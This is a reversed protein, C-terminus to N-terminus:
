GKRHRLEVSCAGAEAPEAGEAGGAVAAMSGISEARAGGLYGIM